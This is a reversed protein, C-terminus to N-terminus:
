FAFGFGINAMLGSTLISPLDGDEIVSQVETSGDPFTVTMDATKPIGSFAFGVEPRFYFLGGLKAGLKINLSNSKSDFVGTGGTQAGNDSEINTADGSIKFSAYSLGGYLGKGEKFFYYNAGAELYRFKGTADDEDDLYSDAKIGSYDVFAALRNQLLPTVYEMNAGILNPFGIKVGIRLPKEQPLLMSSTFLCLAVLVIKPNCIKKM